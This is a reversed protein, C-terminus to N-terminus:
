LYKHDGISENQGPKYIDHNGERTEDTIHKRAFSVKTQYYSVSPRNQAFRIGLIMDGSAFRGTMQLIRMM